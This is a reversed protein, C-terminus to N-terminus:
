RTDTLLRWHVLVLAPRARAVEPGVADLSMWQLSEGGLSRVARCLALWSESTPGVWVVRMPAPVLGPSPRVPGSATMM